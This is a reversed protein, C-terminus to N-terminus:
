FRTWKNEGGPRIELLMDQRSPPKTNLEHMAGGQRHMILAEKFLLRHIAPSFGALLSKVDGALLSM